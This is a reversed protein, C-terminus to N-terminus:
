DMLHTSPDSEASDAIGTLTLVGSAFLRDREEQLKSAIEARLTGLLGLALGQLMMWQHQDTNPTSIYSDLARVDLRYTFAWRCILDRVVQLELQDRRYSLAVADDQTVLLDGRLGFESMRRVLQINARVDGPEVERKSGLILFKAIAAQLEPKTTEVLSLFEKTEDTNLVITLQLEEPTNEV